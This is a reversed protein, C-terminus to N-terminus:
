WSARYYLEGTTQDAFIKALKERTDVLDSFYYEGYDTGGFFFGQQVPLLDPALDHDVLVKECLEDLEKLKEVSVYSEQCEDDGGQVNDVFWKHVQNAKRWCAAEYIVESLNEIGECLPKGNQTIALQGSINRHGWKAGVHIRKELYMDLGM